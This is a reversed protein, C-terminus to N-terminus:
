YLDEPKIDSFSPSSSDRESLVSNKIPWKIDIESDSWCFNREDKPSYDADVKYLFEAYDSIACFGHAFGIPVFLQKRNEASLYFGEWQKFTPSNKRIDVVVDYVEGVCVRVLKSQANPPLQWHMGRFTGRKSRSHNDQLLEVDIGIEAYKSKNYSEYFFGRNDGFFDPEIVMVGELKCKHVKM